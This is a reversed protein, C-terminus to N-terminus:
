RSTKEKHSLRKIILIGISFVIGLAGILKIPIAIFSTSAFLHPTGEGFNITTSLRYRGIFFGSLILTVPQQCYIPKKGKTPCNVEASGTAVLLRQSNALINNPLIEYDAKEGFNGRLEILGHPKILNKGQNEVKLVIPIKDSSEVINIINNFIKLKFRSLLDFLGIRGKVEVQESNSITILINAGISARMRSSTEGEKTPPAQTQSFFSYYYDGEPAEEPIRIRLLLQQSQGSKLFFPQDLNIESNDLSFRVPGELENLVEIHGLNDIPKIPLVKTNIIVPDSFNKLTYAVVVSKGPKIIMELLPPSISLSIQQAQVKNLHIIFLYYIIIIIFLTLFKKLQNKILKKNFNNM